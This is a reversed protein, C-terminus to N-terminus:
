MWGLRQSQKKSLTWSLSQRYDGVGGCQAGRTGAGGRRDDGRLPGVEQFAAGLADVLGVVFPLEAVQLQRV